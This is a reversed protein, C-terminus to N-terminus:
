MKILIQTVGKRDLNKMSKMKDDKKSATYSVIMPLYVLESSVITSKWIGLQIVTINRAAYKM